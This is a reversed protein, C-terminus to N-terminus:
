PILSSGGGAHAAKKPPLSAVGVAARRPPLFSDDATSLHRTLSCRLM